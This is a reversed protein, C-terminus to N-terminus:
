RHDGGLNESTPRGETRQNQGAGDVFGADGKASHRGLLGSDDIGVPEGGFRARAEDSQGAFGGSPFEGLRVM